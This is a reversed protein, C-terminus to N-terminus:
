YIAYLLQLMHFPQENFACYFIFDVVIINMVTWAVGFFALYLYKHVTTLGMPTGCNADDIMLIHPM